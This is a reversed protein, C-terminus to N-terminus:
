SSLLMSLSSSSSRHRRHRLRRRCHCSSRYSASFVAGETSPIPPLANDSSTAMGAAAEDRVCGIEDASEPSRETAARCRRPQTASSQTLRRLLKRTNLNLGFKSIGM